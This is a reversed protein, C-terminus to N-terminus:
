DTRLKGRITVTVFGTPETEVFRNELQKERVEDKVSISLPAKSDFVLETVEGGRGIVLKINAAKDFAITGM